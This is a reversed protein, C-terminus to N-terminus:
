NGSYKKELRVAIITITAAFLIQMVLGTNFESWPNFILIAFLPVLLSVLDRKPKLLAIGCLIFSSIICGWIGASALISDKTIEGIIIGIFSIDPNSIWISLIGIAIGAFAIIPASVWAYKPLQHASITKDNM